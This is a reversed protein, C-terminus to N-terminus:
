RGEFRPFRRENWAALGERMDQSRACRAERRRAAETDFSGRAIEDISQKMGQLALPAAGELAEVYEDICLDLKQDDVLRDLYGIRLLDDGSQSRALLFIEKTAAIGLRSVARVLGSPYYHLGLRAAPMRLEMGQVGIRFDCALALDVGGGYVSGNIRCVTPQPLREVADVTEEFGEPSPAADGRTFEGINYGSCFVRGAAALVVVRISRDQGLQGCIDRLAVLDERHMRNLHAPRNLRITGRPGDVNLIPPGELQPATNM